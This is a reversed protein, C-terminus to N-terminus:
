RPPVLGQQALADIHPSVAPNNGYVGLRDARLADISILVLNPREPTAVQDTVRPNFVPLDRVIGHFMGAGLLVVVTGVLVGLIVNRLCKGVRSSDAVSAAVAHGLWGTLGGAIMTLAVFVIPAPDQFRHLGYAFTVLAPCLGTYLGILVARKAERRILSLVVWLIAGALAVILGCVLADFLAVYAVTLLRRGLGVSPDGELLAFLSDTLGFVLGWGLGFLAALSIPTFTARPAHDSM